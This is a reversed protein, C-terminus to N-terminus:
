ATVPERAADLLKRGAQRRREALRAEVEVRAEPGAVHEAIDGLRFIQGLGGWTGDPIEPTFVWVRSEPHPWRGAEAEVLAETMAATVAARREDDWQGEPVQAVFRYRPADAPKGAVYMEHRHVFVWAIARAAENRPDVGEHKLLLDTLKALLAQEADQDLAGDPIFADLMPM